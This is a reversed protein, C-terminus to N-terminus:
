RHEFYAGIADALGESTQDDAVIDPDLGAVRAAAATTPGIVAVRLEPPRQWGPPVAAGFGAVSSGSAFSVVDLGALVEALRAPADPDPSTLYVAVDDVYAGRRRLAAPVTERGTESRPFLVRRGAMPYAELARALGEATSEDALPQCALGGRGAAAASGPGVAFVLPSPGTLDLELEASLRTIADVANTSTFVVYDYAGFERLARRPSELDTPPGIRIMPVVEVEAGHQRLRATLAGAQDAPRTVLVRRGVLPSPRGQGRAASRAGSMNLPVQGV